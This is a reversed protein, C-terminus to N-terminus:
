QRLPKNRPALEGNQNVSPCNWAKEWGQATPCNRQDFVPGEISVYASLTQMGIVWIECLCLTAVLFWFISPNDKKTIHISGYKVYNKAWARWLALAGYASAAVLSIWVWIPM